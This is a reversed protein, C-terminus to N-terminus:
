LVQRCLTRINLKYLKIAIDGCLIMVVGFVNCEICLYVRVYDVKPKLTTVVTAVFTESIYVEWVGLKMYKWM